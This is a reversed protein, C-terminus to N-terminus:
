LWLCNGCKLKTKRRLITHFLRNPITTSCKMYGAALLSVAEAAKPQELQRSQQTGPVACTKLTLRYTGNISTLFLGLGHWISAFISAQFAYYGSSVLQTPITHPPSVWAFLGSFHSHSDFLMNKKADHLLRQFTPLTRSM